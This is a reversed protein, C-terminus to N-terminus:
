SVRIAEKQVAIRARPRLTEPMVLDVPRGLLDELYFKAQTYRDFTYPPDLDALLDVDSESEAEDRAVSGFLSLSRIGLRKMETQHDRLLRLVEERNMYNIPVGIM